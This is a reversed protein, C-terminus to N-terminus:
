QPHRPSVSKHISTVACAATMNLRPPIHSSARVVTRCVLFGLFHVVSVVFVIKRAAIRRCPEMMMCRVSGSRQTSIMAPCSRKYSSACMTAVAHRVPNRRPDRQMRRQARGTRGKKPIAGDIQFVKDAGACMGGEDDLGPQRSLDGENGDRGGQIRILFRGRSVPDRVAHQIAVDGYSSGDSGGGAVFNRM